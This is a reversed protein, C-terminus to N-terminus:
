EEAVVLALRDAEAIFGFWKDSPLMREQLGNWVVDSSVATVFPEVTPAVWFALVAAGVMALSGTISNSDYIKLATGFSRKVRSGYFDVSYIEDLLLHIVYGVLVFLGALWALTPDAGFVRFYIAATAIAFFVGAILSHFVGRHRAYKHFVNHGFYRVMLYTGVWIIWMEAVSFKWSYNFLFAFALFVGLGAFMGRSARSNELDIDPLVAGFTGALALTVLDNVPVIDAAMTLTSLMGSAVIGVAAHTAFNAM